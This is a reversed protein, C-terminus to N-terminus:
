PRACDGEARAIAARLRKVVDHWLKTDSSKDDADFHEGWAHYALGDLYEADEVSITVMGEPTATPDFSGPVQSPDDTFRYIGDDDTWGYLMSPFEPDTVALVEDGEPGDPIVDEPPFWYDGGYLGQENSKLRVLIDGSGNPNIVGLSIGHMGRQLEATSTSAISVPTGKKNLTMTM